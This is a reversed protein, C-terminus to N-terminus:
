VNKINFLKEIKIKRTNRKVFNKLIRDYVESSSLGSSIYENYTEITKNGFRSM